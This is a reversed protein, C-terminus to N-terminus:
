HQEGLWFPRSGSLEVFGDVAVEWYGNKNTLNDSTPSGHYNYLYIKSKSPLWKKYDSSIASWRISPTIVSINIKDTFNELASFLSTEDKALINVAPQKLTILFYLATELVHNNDSSLIKLPAQTALKPKLEEVLNEPAIVVDLKIGWDLVREVAYSSCVVLPSWELLPEALTLGLPDIILLAPEQGEKVFHHSSM